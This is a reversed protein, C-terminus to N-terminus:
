LGNIILQVTEQQSDSPNTIYCIYKGADAHTVATLKISFNGRLYKDPFTEARKKYQPDQGVLSHEGKIISYVITDNKDRWHVDTDQLKLDHETSSCPLVVSGGIDAEVTVELSVSILFVKLVFVCDPM